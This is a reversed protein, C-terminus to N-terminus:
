QQCRLLMAEDQAARDISAKKATNEATQIMSNKAYPDHGFNDWVWDERDGIGGTGLPNPYYIHPSNSTRDCLLALIASHMGLEIEAAAATIVKASTACAQSITPGTIGPAGIMGAVWPAGYFSFQQPITLGLYLGDLMEPSIRRESLARAGVEAAFRLSHLHGFSGQWRCFPTSWYGGYPIYVNEFQM